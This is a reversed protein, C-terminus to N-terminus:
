KNTLALIRDVLGVTKAAFEGTIRLTTQNLERIEERAAELQASKADIRALYDAARTEASHMREQAFDLQAQMVSSQDRLTLLHKEEATALTQTLRAIEAEAETLRQALAANREQLGGFTAPCLTELPPLGARDGCLAVLAYNISVVTLWKPDIDGKGFYDHATGWGIRDKIVSHVRPVTFGRSTRLAKHYARASEVGDLATLDYGNCTRGLDPCKLCKHWLPLGQAPVADPVTPVADSAAPAVTNSDPAPLEAPLIDQM